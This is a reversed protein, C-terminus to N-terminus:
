TDYISNPDPLAIGGMGGFFFHVPPPSVPIHKSVGEMKKQVGGEGMEYNNYWM